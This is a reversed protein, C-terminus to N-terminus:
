AKLLSQGRKVSQPDLFAFTKGAPDAIILIVSMDYKQSLKGFDVEVIPDGAKVRDGQKKSLLRFGDGKSNVTDVGIHILIQVGDEREIGYAHGTPFLTALTGNAPACLTLKDLGYRFAISQGIMEEAFVPDSVTKIDVIRGDAVAVIDDDPIGELPPLKPSEGLKFLKDFLGM